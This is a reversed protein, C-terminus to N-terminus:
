ERLRKGWWIVEATGVCSVANNGISYQIGCVCGFPKASVQKSLVTFSRISNAVSHIALDLAKREGRAGEASIDRRRQAAGQLSGLVSSLAQPPAAALRVFSLLRYDSPDRGPGGRRVNGLRTEFDLAPLHAERPVPKNRGSVHLCTFCLRYGAEWWSRRPFPHYVIGRKQRLLALAAESEWKM